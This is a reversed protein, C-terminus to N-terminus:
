SKIWKNLFDLLKKEITKSLGLVQRQPMYKTGLQHYKYYAVDSGIVIMDKTRVLERPSRKLKGSNVLIPGAGYGRRIRSNITNLELPAWRGGYVGGETGFQKQVDALVIKKAEDFFPNLNELKKKYKDLALMTGKINVTMTMKM